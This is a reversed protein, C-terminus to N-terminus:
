STLLLKWSLNLGMRRRRRCRERHNRSQNSKSGAALSLKIRLPHKKGLIIEQPEHPQAKHACVWPDWRDFVGAAERVDPFCHLKGASTFGPQRRGERDAHTQHHRSGRIDDCEVQFLRVFVCSSTLSWSIFKIILYDSWSLLVPPLFDFGAATRTRKRDTITGSIFVFGGATWASSSSIM